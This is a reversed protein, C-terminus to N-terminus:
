SSGRVAAAGVSPGSPGGAARPPNPPSTMGHAATTVGLVRDVGVPPTPLRRTRRREYRTLAWSVLVGIGFALTVWVPSGLRASQSFVPHGIVTLLGLGAPIVAAWASADRRRRRLLMVTGAIGAVSLLTWAGNPVLLHLLFDGLFDVQLLLLRVWPDSVPAMTFHWTFTDQLSHHIGPFGFLAGIVSSAVTLGVATAGTFWVRRDRRHAPVLVLVACVAAVAVCLIMVSSYKFFYVLAYGTLTLLLGRRWSGKLLYAVGLIMILAAMLSSAEALIATGHELGVPLAYFALQTVLAARAGLGIVRALRHVLLGAVATSAVAVLWLGVRDGFLAMLPLSVLPYGIRPSFIAAYAPTRDHIGVLPGQGAWAASVCDAGVGQDPLSPNACYQSFATFWAEHVPAGALQHAIRIYQVTDGWVVTPGLIAAVVVFLLCAAIPPIRHGGRQLVTSAGRAM